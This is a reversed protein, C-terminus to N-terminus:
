RAASEQLHAYRDWFLALCLVDHSHECTHQYTKSVVWRLTVPGCIAERREEWLAADFRPLLAIQERRGAWFQAVLSDLDNGDNWARDEDADDVCPRPEGLWQRMSPLAIAREYYAMHFVHRAATWEGLARPPRAYHREPPIQEVGWIFGEASAQLQSHFWASLDM